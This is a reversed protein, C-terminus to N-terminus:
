RIVRIPCSPKKCSNIVRTGTRMLRYEANRRRTLGALEYRKGDVIVGDYIRMQRAATRYHGERLHWAIKTTRTFGNSPRYDLMGPGLNFTFSTLATVMKPTVKVGPIRALLEDQFYELDSRLLALGERKSICGWKRRDAKTVKGYHLLHGYGITAHGAPDNYPCPYFGEFGAVFRTTQQSVAAASSATLALAGLALVVILTLRRV